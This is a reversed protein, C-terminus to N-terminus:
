GNVTTGDNFDLENWFAEDSLFDNTVTTSNPYNIALYTLQAASKQPYMECDGFRPQLGYAFSEYLDVFKSVMEMEEGTYPMGNRISSPLILLLDEGHAIGLNANSGSMAEGLGYVAKYQDFYLYVSIHRQMLKVMETVGAFFLRNSIMKVFQRYNQEHLDESGLYHVRIGTSLADRWQQDTVAYKYDLISPLLENWRKDIQQLYSANSAFEAAPYLGEAETVSLLLPVRSFKGKRTLALPHESLFPEPNRPGRKEVVVGLPSFPNYLFDQLTAVQRVIDEAARNRLCELMTQSENFACGVGSAISRAKEPAREMMVWPNFASGSHGIGRHFLDWSLPSLYHLHVSASGASFGSLTIQNPNGGFYKINKKVWQLATRQDKLGFNGAIVDDGTSLFGLPGLRYNVTVLLLPRTLLFDPQFFGGGGYMFAGGHLFVVTPLPESPALDPTYVNVFLCDEEGVLKDDGPKLHTWQMCVPGVRTANRPEYWRDDYPEPVAFRRVGIPAKAYPIGEFAFYNKRQEGVIPGNKITVKVGVATAGVTYDLLLLFPFLVSVLFMTSRLITM